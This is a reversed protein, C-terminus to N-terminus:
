WYLAFWLWSVCVNNNWKLQSCSHAVNVIITRIVRAKPVRWLNAAQEYHGFAHVAQILRQGLSSKSFQIGTFGVIFVWSLLLYYDLGHTPTNKLPGESDFDALEVTKNPRLGTVKSIFDRISLFTRETSNFRAVAKANHFVIINPVAITGFRSNLNSFHIADIALIDIQYFARAIANYHPAIDACFPCWPAYFM